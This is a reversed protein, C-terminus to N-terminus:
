ATGQLRPALDDLMQEHIPAQPSAVHYLPRRDVMREPDAVLVLTQGPRERILRHSAELIRALDNRDSALIATPVNPIVRGNLLWDDIDHLFGFRASSNALVNAIDRQGEASMLFQEIGIRVLRDILHTPDEAPAVLLIGAGLSAAYPEPRSWVHTPVVVIVCAGTVDRRWWLPALQFLLSKGSGTPMSVMMTAADPMTLLASVAAKQTVSTYADHGM